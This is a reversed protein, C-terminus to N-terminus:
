NLEQVIIYEIKNYEQWLRITKPFNGDYVTHTYIQTDNKYVTLVNNIITFRLIDGNSWGYPLTPSIIGTQSTKCYQMTDNSNMQTAVRWVSADGIAIQTGTSLNSNLKLTVEYDTPVTYDSIKFIDGGSQVTQWTQIDSQTAYFSVDRLVFTEQLLSRCIIKVM